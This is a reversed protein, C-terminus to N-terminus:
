SLFLIIQQAYLIESFYRIYSLSVNLLKNLLKSLSKKLVFYKFYWKKIPHHLFIFTQWM